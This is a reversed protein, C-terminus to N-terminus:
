PFSRDECTKAFSFLIWNSEWPIACQIGQGPLCGCSAVGHGRWLHVETSVCFWRVSLGQGCVEPWSEGWRGCLLCVEHRRQWLAHSCDFSPLPPQNEESAWGRRGHLLRLTPRECNAMSRCQDLQTSGRGNYLWLTQWPRGKGSEIELSIIRVIFMIFFIHHMSASKCGQLSWLSAVELRWALQEQVAAQLGRALTLKQWNPVM